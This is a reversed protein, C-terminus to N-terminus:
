LFCTLRTLRTQKKEPTPELQKLQEKLQKAQERNKKAEEKAKKLNETQKEIQEKLLKARYRIVTPDNEKLEIKQNKGNVENVEFFKGNEILISM